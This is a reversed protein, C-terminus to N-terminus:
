GDAPRFVPYFVDHRHVFAVQVPQGIRVEEAARGVVNTSLRLGPQEDLEVIAYVYPEQGPVWQQVNVTFSAVTGRGSLEQPAVSASSCQPCRPSPPHLWYGCDGCRLMRLLGDAGSAWFFRHLPDDAPRARVLLPDDVIM